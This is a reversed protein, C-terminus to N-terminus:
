GRLYTRGAGDRMKRLRQLRYGEFVSALAALYLRKFGSPRDSQLRIKSPLLSDQVSLEYVIEARLPEEGLREL